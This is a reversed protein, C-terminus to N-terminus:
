KCYLIIENNKLTEQVNIVRQNSSGRWKLTLDKKDVEFRGDVLVDISCLIWNLDDNEVKKCRSMLEAWTYGTWLWITKDPFDQRFWDILDSIDGINKPHLPEGGIISIGSTYKTITPMIKEKYVERNFEKGSNFDWIEQNFCDKCYFECGTFFITTRLGEGNLIDNTRIQQYNSM